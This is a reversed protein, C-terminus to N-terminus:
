REIRAKLEEYKQKWEDRDQQMAALMGGNVQAAYVACDFAEQPVYRKGEFQVAIWGTQKM